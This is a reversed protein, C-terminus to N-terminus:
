ARFFERWAEAITEGAEALGNRRALEHGVGDMVVLRTEAPIHRVAAGLAETSGFPDRAGHIFLSKTHVSSFHSMRLEEPRRPPHLPYSLLVLGSVLAPDEAAVITSQRGGYSHGGLYFPGTVIRRLANVATRLGARDRPAAGAVPPGQPRLQRFPLDIRLSTVGMIALASAVSVLLPAECNSGAGHALVVAEGTAVKPTHLFGRVPPDDNEEFVTVPLPM